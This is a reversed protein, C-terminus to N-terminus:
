GDTGLIASTHQLLPSFLLFWALGRVNRQMLRLRHHEYAPRRAAVIEVPILSIDGRSMALIWIFYNRLARRLARATVTHIHACQMSAVPYPLHAHIGYM